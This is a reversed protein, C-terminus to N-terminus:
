QYIKDNNRNAPFKPRRASIPSREQPKSRHPGIASPGTPPEQPALPRLPGAPPERPTPPARTRPPQPCLHGAV